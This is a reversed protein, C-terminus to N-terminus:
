RLMVTNLWEKNMVTGDDLEFNFDSWKITKPEDEVLEIAEVLAFTRDSAIFTDAFLRPDRLTDAWQGKTVLRDELQVVLLKDFQRQANYDPDLPMLSESGNVISSM